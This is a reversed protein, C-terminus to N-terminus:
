VLTDPGRQALVSNPNNDPAQLVFVAGKILSLRPVAGDAHDVRSSSSPEQFMGALVFGTRNKSM